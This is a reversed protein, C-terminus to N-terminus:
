QSEGNLLDRFGSHGRADLRNILAKAHAKAKADTGGLASSLISRAHEEWGYIEYGEKAGDVLLSLCEVSETSRDAAIKALRQVALHDVEVKGTIKLVEVLKTLSWDRDLWDSSFWWGFATLETLHAHRERTAKATALRQDWLAKFREIVEPVPKTEHYIAFGIQHFAHGSIADPAKAFFEIFLPDDLGIRGWGYLWLIHEALREKPAQPYKWERPETPIREIARAYEARLVRLLIDSPNWCIVFSDWAADRLEAREAATPFIRPINRAVWSEDLAVLWALGQGYASRVALSSDLHPDLHLDLVRQVEPMKEFWLAKPKGDKSQAELNQKAWLAYAIVASIAKPRETNLAMTMPDNKLRLYEAETEKTPEPNSALGELVSRVQERLEFPIANSKSQLGLLLLSGIAKFAWGWDPDAEGQDKNRDPIEHPQKAAWECLQLVPNWNFKLNERAAQELGYVVARVYTPDLEQFKQAEEAFRAPDKTVVSSLQRGLGEPSPSMWGDQPEWTGLFTVIESVTSTALDKAEMPSGPGFWGGSRYSAFEPHEAPGLEKTLDEFRAKWDGPLDESILALKDRKWGKVYTGIQEETAAQGWFSAHRAKLKEPDPGAGIWGLVTRQDGDSLHKFFEHLLLAYEHWLPARNLMGKSMLTQEIHEPDGEPFLRLIHHALRRFIVFRKRRLFRVLDPVNRADKRAVAEAADRVATVLYDKISRGFNQGHEEIASRWSRSHDDFRKKGGESRPQEIAEELLGCLMELADRGAKEVLPPLNNKVIEQYEWDLSAPPRPDHAIALLSRALDLAAEMQGEKALKEMLEGSRKPLLLGGGGRLWAKISPVLQAALDAPMAKAAESFDSHVRVNKTEPISLIIKLVDLPAIKAMRALYRSQPWAWFGITWKEEDYEPEPPEDFLGEKALPQLWAPNSLPHFFHGFAVPNNPIRKRLFLADAQVPSPKAALLDIQAHWALYHEEFKELIGDLVAEIQNWFERFEDDLSRPASLDDRHARAALGYENESGPLRLWAQAVPDTEAIALGKLVSRIEDKHRDDGKAGEKLRASQDAVTEL